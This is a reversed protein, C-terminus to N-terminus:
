LKLFKRTEWFKGNRLIQLFYIGTPLQAITQSEIKQQFLQGAPPTVNWDLVKKGSSNYLLFSFEISNNTFIELNLDDFVPNPYLSFISSNFGTIDQSTNEIHGDMWWLRNRLWRKLESIESPYTAGVFDNPWIQVGLIQWREFNRQQAGELHTALSDIVEFISEDSLIDARLFKWRDVTKQYFDPDSFLRDWWVPVQYTDNPCYKHYNLIWGEHSSGACFNANGYGLNFDWVPGAKIKENKNKHFYTSIRYGDVNRGLENILFFDIFSDEDIFKRFGNEKDNFDSGFAAVEFSDVFSTIYDWQQPKLNEPKPYIVQYLIPQFHADFDSTWVNEDAAGFKDIRFIYGGTLSDGQLDDEDLKSIDIRDNDRKLKEMLVYVGVYEDNIVLECLQTRAAYQGIRRSLEYTLINRILTKDSFPGHLIWDNEKPMGLLEVNLNEGMDDQTELRYSKKDFLFQSTQGRIEIAINGNYVNPVGDIENIAGEQHIIQMQGNIRPENVIPEGNNTTIKIIPLHTTELIQGFGNNFILFSFLLIFLRTM